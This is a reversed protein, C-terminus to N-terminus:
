SSESVKMIIDAIKNGILDGSGEAVLLQRLHMQQVNEVMIVFKRAINVVWTRVTKLFM